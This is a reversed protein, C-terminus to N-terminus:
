RRSRAAVVRRRWLSPRAAGDSSGTLGELTACASSDAEVEVELKHRWRSTERMELRVQRSMVNPWGNLQAAKIAPKRPHSCPSCTSNARTHSFRAAEEIICSLAGKRARGLSAGRDTCLLHTERTDFRSHLLLRTSSSEIEVRKTM